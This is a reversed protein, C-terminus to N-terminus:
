KRKVALMALRLYQVDPGHPRLRAGARGPVGDGRHAHHRPGRGGHRRPHEARAAAVLLPPQLPLALDLATLPMEVPPHSPNRLLHFYGIFFVWTFATTGILKLWLWCRMHRGVTSMGGPSPGQPVPSGAGIPALLTDPPPPTM